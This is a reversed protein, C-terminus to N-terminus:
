VDQRMENSLKQFGLRLSSKVTGLPLDMDDAIEQHSKGEFYSKYIVQAQQQPLKSIAQHIRPADANAEFAVEESSEGLANKAKERVLHRRIHDIYQNRAIRFLWTSAAAKASNYQEAKRWVTLMSEQVLEEALVADKTLGLLWSNLRPAFHDYFRMFAHKDRTKAVQELCENWHKISKAQGADKNMPTESKM